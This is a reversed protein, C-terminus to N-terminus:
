YATIMIVQLDPAIEKLKILTEFGSMGPMRCDLLVIAPPDSSVHSLAVEGSDALVPDFGENEFIAQMLRLNERTDDVILIKPTGDAM